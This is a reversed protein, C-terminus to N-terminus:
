TEEHCGDQISTTGQDRDLIAVMLPCLKLMLGIPFNNLLRRRQFWDALKFCVRCPHDKPLMREFNCCVVAQSHPLLVFM